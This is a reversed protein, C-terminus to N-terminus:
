EDPGPNEMLAAVRRQELLEWEPSGPRRAVYVTRFVNGSHSRRHREVSRSALTYAENVSDATLGLAPLVCACGMLRPLKAGRWELRLADLLHLRVFSSHPGLARIASGSREVAPHETEPAVGILLDTGAPVLVVERRESLRATDEENAFASASLRLEGIAGDRLTPWPLGILPQLAGDKVRVPIVIAREYRDQDM